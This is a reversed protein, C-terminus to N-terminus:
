AYCPINGNSLRKETVNRPFNEVSKAEKRKTVEQERRRKLRKKINEFRQLKSLNSENEKGNLNVLVKSPKNPKSKSRPEDKLIFLTLIRISGFIFKSLM